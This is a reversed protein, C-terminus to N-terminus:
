FKWILDAQVTVAREDDFLKAATDTTVPQTFFVNAGITLFDALNYAVRWVHGKTNAFGFDSETFAGVVSNAEIRAYKYGFSWDGKKKNEGVQFGVAFATNQDDFGVSPDEDGCNRALDFYPTIPVGFAKVTVKTTWNFVRFAQAALLKNVVHNGNAKANTLTSNTLDAELHSYDYYALATTFNVDQNIDWKVGAQYGAMTTDFGQQIENLMFYGTNVFPKVPGLCQVEYQAWFGEPNVDPDWVMDTCFFPNAMKGGVITLGKITKPEYKVFALDIWIPKRSFNDTFTQNTTTPDQGLPGGSFTNKAGNISGLDNSAGSALRFGVTLDKDLFSKEFGFRLRFRPRNRSKKETGGTGDTESWTQGEYRLRLDGSFKLDKLWSPAAATKKAADANMENILKIVEDKQAEKLRSDSAANELQAIRRDQDKLRQEMAKLDQGFAPAALALWCLGIMM